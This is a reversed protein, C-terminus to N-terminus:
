AYEGSVVEFAPPRKTLVEPASKGRDTQNLLSFRAEWLHAQYHTSLLSEYVARPRTYVRGNQFMFGDIRFGPAGGGEPLNVRFTVPEALRQREEDSRLVSAPVLDHEIRAHQRALARVDNLAQRRQEDLAKKTEEAEITRLEEDSILAAVDAPLDALLRRRRAALDDALPASATIAQEPSSLMGSVRAALKEARKARGDALRELLAAKQEESLPKRSKAM